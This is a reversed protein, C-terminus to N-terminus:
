QLPRLREVRRRHDSGGNGVSGACRDQPELAHPVVVRRRGDRRVTRNRKLRDVIANRDVLFRVRNLNARVVPASRSGVVVKRDALEDFRKQGIDMMVRRQNPNDGPDSRRSM